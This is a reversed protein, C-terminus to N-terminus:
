VRKTTHILDEVVTIFENIEKTSIHKNEIKSILNKVLKKYTENTRIRNNDQLSYTIKERLIKLGKAIDASCSKEFFQIRKALDSPSVSADKSLVLDKDAFHTALHMRIILLVYFGFLVIQITEHWKNLGYISEEDYFVLMLVLSLICYISTLFSVAPTIAMGSNTKNEIFWGSNGIWFLINLFETWAVRYWFGDVYTNPAIVFAIGVIILASVLWSLFILLLPNKLKM